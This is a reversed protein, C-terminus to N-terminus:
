ELQPTNPNNRILYEALWEVPNAPKVSCLEVLAPTLTPTIEMGIFQQVEDTSPLPDSLTKPFFFKVEGFAAEVSASAHGLNRTKDKGFQARLCTPCRVKAVLPDIPGLLANLRAVAGTGTFALVTCPASTLLAVAAEYTGCPVAAEAPPASTFSQLSWGAATDALTDKPFVIWESSAEDTGQSSFLPNSWLATNGCRTSGKRLLTHDLTASNVGAVTWPQRKNSLTYDGVADISENDKMLSMGDAGASLGKGSVPQSQSPDVPLGDPVQDADYFCFVGFAPVFKGSECNVIESPAGPAGAKASLWGLAYGSLSVAESTPNYIQLLPTSGSIWASIFLRPTPAPPAHPLDSEIMALFDTARDIDLMTKVRNTVVLGASAAAKITEAVVDTEPTLLVLTTQTQLFEPFFFSTDRAARETSVSGYTANSTGENGYIARVSLPAKQRAETTSEPGQLSLWAAVACPRQMVLALSQGSTMLEILADNKEEAFFGAAQEKTLTLAKSCVITFGNAEAVALISPAHNDFVDPKVFAFTYEVSEVASAGFLSIAEAAAATPSLSSHVASNSAPTSLWSEVAFPKELLAAVLPTGTETLANVKEPTAGLADAKVFEAAQAADISVTKELVVLFGEAVAAELTSREKLLTLTTERPFVKPFFFKLERYAAMKTASAHVAKKILDTGFVARVSGPAQEKAESISEPGALRQWEAVADVKDLAMAVIPGSSMFQCLAPFFPKGEHEEYLEAAQQSSLTTQLRALVAFSNEAIVTEVLPANGAAVVDPTILALTKEASMTRAAPCLNQKWSRCDNAPL